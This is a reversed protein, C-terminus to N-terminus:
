SEGSDEGPSRQKKRKALYTWTPIAVATIALAISVALFLVVHRLYIHLTAPNPEPPYLAGVWFLYAARNLSWAALVLLFIVVVWRGKTMKIEGIISDRM